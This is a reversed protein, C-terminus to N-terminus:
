EDKENQQLPKKKKKQNKVSVSRDFIMFIM